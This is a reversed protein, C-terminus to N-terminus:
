MEASRAGTKDGELKMENVDGIGFCERKNQSVNSEDLQRRKPGPYICNVGWEIPKGHIRFCPFDLKITQLCVSEKLDWM